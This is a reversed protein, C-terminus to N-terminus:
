ASSALVQDVAALVDGNNVVVCRRTDDSEDLNMSRLVSMAREFKEM